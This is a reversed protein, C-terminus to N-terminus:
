EHNEKLPPLVERGWQELTKDAKDANCAKCCPVVNDLNHRGGKAIPVVHDMEVPGPGACYACTWLYAAKKLEWEADTMADPENRLVTRRVKSQKPIPKGTQIHEEYLSRYRTLRLENPDTM